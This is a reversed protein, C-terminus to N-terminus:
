QSEQREKADEPTKPPELEQRNPAELTPEGLAVESRTLHLARHLWYAKLTVLLLICAQHVGFNSWDALEPPTQRALKATLALSAIAVLWGLAAPVLYATLVRAPQTGLLRVAATLAGVVRTGRAVLVARTLDQLMSPLAWSLLTCLGLGLTLWPYADPEAAGMCLGWLLVSLLVLLAQCLLTSGFLLFFAPVLALARRGHRAVSLPEADALGVILLAAPFLSALAAVGALWLSARLAGLLHPGDLRLWEVFIMGGEAFLAAEPDPFASLGGSRVAESWPAAAISSVVLNAVATVVLLRWRRGLLLLSETM